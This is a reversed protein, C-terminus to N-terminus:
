PWPAIAIPESLALSGSSVTLRAMGQFQNGAEDRLFFGVMSPTVVPTAECGSLMQAYSALTAEDPIEQFVRRCQEVSGLIAACEEDGLLHESATGNSLAELMTDTLTVVDDFSNSAATSPSFQSGLGVIFVDENTQFLGITLGGHDGCGELTVDVKIMSAEALIDGEPFGGGQVAVIQEGRTGPLRLATEPLDRGGLAASVLATLESVIATAPPPSRRTTSASSGVSRPEMTTESAPQPQDTDVNAASEPAAPHCSCILSCQLVALSCSFRFAKLSSRKM